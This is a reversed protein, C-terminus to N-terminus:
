ARGAPVATLVRDGVSAVTPAQGDRAAIAFQSPFATVAFASVCPGEPTERVVRAVPSLQETIARAEDEYRQETSGSVVVAIVQRHGQLAGAQEAFSPLKDRCPKCGLTFFAVVAGDTLDRETLPMGEVCHTSFPAVTAGVSIGGEETLDPAALPRDRLRRLVALTLSLDLVCLAGVVVLAIALYVM